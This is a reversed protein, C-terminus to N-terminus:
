AHVACNIMGVPRWLGIYRASFADVTPLPTAQEIQSRFLADQFTALTVFSAFALSDSGTSVM